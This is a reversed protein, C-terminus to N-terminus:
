QLYARDLGRQDLRSSKRINIEAFSVRHLLIVQSGKTTWCYGRIQRGIWLKTKAINLTFWRLVVLWYFAFSNATELKFACKGCRGPLCVWWYGTVMWGASLPLLLFDMKMRYLSILTPSTSSGFLIIANGLVVFLSSHQQMICLHHAVSSIEKEDMWSSNTKSHPPHPATFFLLLAVIRIRSERCSWASNSPHTTIPSYYWLLLPSTLTYLLSVVPTSAIIEGELCVCMISHFSKHFLNGEDEGGGGGARGPLVMMVAFRPLGIRVVAGTATCKIAVLLLLGIIIIRDIILTPMQHSRHLFWREIAEGNFAQKSNEEAQSGFPTISIRGSWWM